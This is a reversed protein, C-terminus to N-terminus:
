IEWRISMVIWRSAFLPREFYDVTTDLLLIAESLLSIYMKMMKEGLYGAVVRLNEAM